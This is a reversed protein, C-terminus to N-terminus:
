YCQRTPRWTCRLGKYKFRIVGNTLSNVVETHTHLVTGDYDRAEAAAVQAIVLVVLLAAQGRHKIAVLARLRRLDGAFHQGGSSALHAWLHSLPHM